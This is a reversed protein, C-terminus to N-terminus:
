VNAGTERRLMSDYDSVTCHTLLVCSFGNSNNEKERHVVMKTSSIRLIDCDNKTELPSIM